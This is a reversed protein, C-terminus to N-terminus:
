FSYSRTRRAIRSDNFNSSSLPLISIEAGEKELDTTTFNARKEKRTNSMEDWNQLSRWEKTTRTVPVRDVAAFKWQM